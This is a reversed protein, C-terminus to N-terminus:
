MRKFKISKPIKITKYAELAYNDTMGAIYDCVIQKPINNERAYLDKMKKLYSGFSNKLSHEEKTYQEYDQGFNDYLELLYDFIEEM